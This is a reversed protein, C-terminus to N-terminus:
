REERSAILDEYLRTLRKLYTGEDCHALVYGRCRNQMLRYADREASLAAARRMADALSPVSGAECLFGTDGERVLESIGGIRTGIVPTGVAFAEVISFPMNERWTSCTVAFSAREVLRRLAEGQRFGVFEVRERAESRTILREVAAREPGEGAIVIRWGSLERAVALFAEVLVRAGKERSLRGFFLFYPSACNTIASGERARALASEGVFNRMVTVQSESFGGELLKSRMFESPAIIRDVKAYMRRARLYFAEAAALVSKARSGKVCRNKVCSSFKGGLCADCVEGAGNLMLYNPCVLIYDHATLVVPVRNRRLYPADLISLTIQRHVLGLHVVDPRVERCLAEFRRRAEPSYVLTAAAGVKEGLTGTGDYSKQSVFFREQECPVNAKDRMSFFFVEHGLRRLGEALAFYYTESGGRLYHFKNVLLVRM